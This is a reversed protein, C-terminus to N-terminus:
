LIKCFIAITIQLFHSTKELKKRVNSFRVFFPENKGASEGESKTM